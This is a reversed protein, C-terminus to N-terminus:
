AAKHAKVWDSRLRETSRKVRANGREDFEILIFDGEGRLCAVVHM